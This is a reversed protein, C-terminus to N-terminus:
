SSSRSISSRRWCAALQHRPAAEAFPKLSHLSGASAMHKAVRRRLRARCTACPRLTRSRPGQSCAEAALGDRQGSVSASHRLLAAEYVDVFGSATVATGRGAVLGVGAEVSV